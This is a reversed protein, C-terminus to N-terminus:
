ADAAEAPAVRVAILLFDGDAGSEIEVSDALNELSGGVEPLELQSRVRLAAGAEMPGVRLDIIGNGDEIALRTPGDPFGEPITASLADGLLMADSLRDVSFGTRAALVSIVRSVVPAVLEGSDIAIETGQAAVAPESVHERGNAQDGARLALRMRIRTGRGAGGLIEFSDALAAILTLGLRLSARDVEARPRIGEGRDSVEVTVGDPDGSAEVELPGDDGDYAHVAVNMCAETVITKLDGLRTEDMGLAEAFGAVAHRVMAANEARAPLSLQMRSPQSTM